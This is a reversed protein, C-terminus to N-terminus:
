KRVRKEVIKMMDAIFFRLGGLLCLLGAFTSVYSRFLLEAEHFEVAQIVCAVAVGFFTLTSIMEGISKPNRAM